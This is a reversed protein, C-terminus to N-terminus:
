LADPYITGDKEDLTLFADIAGSSLNNGAITAIIGTYARYGGKPLVVDDFIVTGAVVGAAPTSAQTVLSAGTWLTTANTSLATDDATVLKFIVTGAGAAVIGTSIFGRLYMKTGTGLRRLVASGGGAAIATNVVNGIVNSGTSGTVDAAKAFEILKDLISM